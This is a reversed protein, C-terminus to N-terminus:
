SRSHGNSLKLASQDILEGIPVGPGVVGGLEVFVNKIVGRFPARVLTHGIRKQLSQLKAQDAKVRLQAQELQQATVAEGASLNEMRLLNAQAQALSAEVASLEAQLLDDNIRVLVDGKSVKKGAIAFLQEVRGQALSTVMLSRHPALVGHYNFKEVFSTPRVKAVEVPWAEVKLEALATRQDIERKNNYLTLGILVILM